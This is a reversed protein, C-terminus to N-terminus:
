RDLGHNLAWVILTLLGISPVYTYRDAYAQAGVHLIGIVPLFAVVFWTVGMVLWPQTRRRLVAWAGGGIIAVLGVAVLSWHQPKGHLPYFPGLNVPFATKQLYWGYSELVQWGRDPISLHQLSVMALQSRQAQIAILGFVLSILLLPGKEILQQRWWKAREFPWAPQELPAVGWRNLPWFDLAVLLLPLTVLMSKSMLGLLFAGVVGAYWTWKRTTVYREYCLMALLMFFTSLVDKREAMWAVSEVRLPHLAWLAAVVASRGLAGTARRLFLFIMVANLTHLGLNTRHFVAPSMGWLTVDLVYSLWTVPIWNGLDFTTFAYRISAATLGAHVAANRSVYGDDDFDVFGNHRTESFVLLTAIALIACVIWNTSKM